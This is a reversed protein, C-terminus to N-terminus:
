LYKIFYSLSWTYTWSNSISYINEGYTLPTFPWSYVVETWNVTVTKTEGDFIIVDWATLSTNTQIVYWNLEFRMWASSGSDMTLFLTPYTEARWEYVVSSQFSGSQSIINTANPTELQSHPNVCTFTLEVNGIWTINYNKRNFKLSTCTATRERVVWNIIIRLKWETKSTQYKIEDVLDNLWEATWSKISLILTITKKRYYKGLVGGGDELPTNYTDFDITWIDDHNSQVVRINQWNDLNWGNFSFIWNLIQKQIKPADWLLESNIPNNM